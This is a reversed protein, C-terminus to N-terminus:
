ARGTEASVADAIVKRAETLVGDLLFREETVAAEREAKRLEALIKSHFSSEESPKTSMVVDHGNRMHAVPRGSGHGGGSTEMLKNGLDSLPRVPQM